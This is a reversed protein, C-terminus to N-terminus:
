EKQKSIKIVYPPETSTQLESNNRQVYEEIKSKRTLEMLESSRSLNIYEANILEKKLKDIKIQQRQVTYRNDIYFIILFIIMVILGIYKKLAGEPLIDGGFIRWSQIKEKKQKNNDVKKNVNM